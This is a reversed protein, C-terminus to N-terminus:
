RSWKNCNNREYQRIELNNTTTNKINNDYNDYIFKYKNSKIM